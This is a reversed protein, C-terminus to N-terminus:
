EVAIYTCFDSSPVDSKYISRVSLLSSHDNIKQTFSFSHLAILSNDFFSNACREFRDSLKFYLKQPATYLLFFKGFSGMDPFLICPGNTDQKGSGLQTLTLKTFVGDSGAPGESGGETIVSALHGIELGYSEFSARYFYRRGLFNLPRSVPWFIEYFRGLKIFFIFNVLIILILKKTYRIYGIQFIVIQLVTHNGYLSIEVMIWKLSIKASCNVALNKKELPRINKASRASSNQSSRASAATATVCRFGLRKM